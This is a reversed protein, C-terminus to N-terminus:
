NQLAIRIYMWKSVCENIYKVFQNWLYPISKSGIGPMTIKRAWGCFHGEAQKTKPITYSISSEYMSDHTSAEFQCSTGKRLM